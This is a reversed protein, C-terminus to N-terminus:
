TSHLLSLSNPSFVQWGFPSGGNPTSTDNFAINSRDIDQYNLVKPKGGGALDATAVITVM